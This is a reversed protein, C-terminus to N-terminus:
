AGSGRGCTGRALAVPVVVERDAAVDNHWLGDATHRRLSAGRVADVVIGRGRTTPALVHRLVGRGFWWSHSGRVVAQRQCVCTRARVTKPEFRTFRGWPAHLWSGQLRSVRWQQAGGPENVSSVDPVIERVRVTLRSQLPSSRGVGSAPTAPPASTTMFQGVAAAHVPLPMVPQYITIKAPRAAPTYRSRRVDKVTTHVESKFNGRGGRRHRVCCRESRPACRMSIMMDFRRLYTPPPMPYTLRFSGLASMM